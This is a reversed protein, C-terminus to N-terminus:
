GASREVTVSCRRHRIGISFLIIDRECRINHEANPSLAYPLSHPSAGGQRKAEGLGLGGCAVVNGEEGKVPLYYM